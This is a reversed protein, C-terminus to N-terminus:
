NIYRQAMNVIGSKDVAELGEKSTGNEEEFKELARDILYNAFIRMKAETVKDFVLSTTAIDNNDM